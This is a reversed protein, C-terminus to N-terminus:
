LSVKISQGNTKKFNTLILTTSTGKLPVSTITICYEKAKFNIMQGIEKILLAVKNIISLEMGMWIIKDGNDMM